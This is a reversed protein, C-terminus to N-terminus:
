QEESGNHHPKGAHSTVKEKHKRSQSALKDTVDDLAAYLSDHQSEARAEFDGSIVHVQAIQREKEVTCVFHCHTLHHMHKAIKQARKEAYDKLADSSDIGKFAITVNLKSSNIM